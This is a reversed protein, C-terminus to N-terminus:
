AIHRWTAREVICRINQQTVSFMRAIDSHSIGQGAMIRIARVDSDTLKHAGAEEGRRPRQQGRELADRMNDKYTGLYLHDVNVCKPNDCKHLVLLGDPIEGNVIEWMVRHALRMSGNHHVLKHGRSLTSRSNYEHCGDASVTIMKWMREITPTSKKHAHGVIYRVHEGKTHGLRRNDQTAISTTGGCGCQCLGSPNIQEPM